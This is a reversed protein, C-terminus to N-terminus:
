TPPEPPIYRYGAARLRQLRVFVQPKREFLVNVGSWIGGYTRMQAFYDDIDVQDMLRRGTANVLLGRFGTPSLAAGYRDRSYFRARELPTRLWNISSVYTLLMENGITTQGLRIAGLEHAIIFSIVDLTKRDDIDMLAQHIVIYNERWSSFTQSYPAITSGTLFLEPLETMGLRACHAKLVAYIDPFQRESIRVSSGRIASERRNRNLVLLPIGVLATIALVRLFGIDKGLVPHTRLWPPQYFILTIALAMLVFNLAVSAYFIPRETPDRLVSEDLLETAM